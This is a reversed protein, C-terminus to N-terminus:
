NIIIWEDFEKIVEVGRTRAFLDFKTYSEDLVEEAIFNRFFMGILHNNNIADKVSEFDEVDVRASKLISKRNEIFSPIFDRINEINEHMYAIVTKDKLASFEKLLNELTAKQKIKEEEVKRLNEEIEKRMKEEEAKKMELVMKQNAYDVKLATRFYGGISPIKTGKEIEKLTYQLNKEIKEDDYKSFIEEIFNEDLGLETYLSNYLENDENKPVLDKEKTKNIKPANKNKSIHFTLKEIKRGVKHEEFTFKIDTKEELEKQAQIIVKRKFDNYRTYKIEEIKLIKRLEKITIKWWGGSLDKKQYQKLLEYIRISYSSKLRAVNELYYSTFNSTLELLYPRIDTNIKFSLYGIEDTEINTFIVSLSFGKKVPKEIVGFMRYAIEKLKTYGDRFFNIDEILEKTPLRYIDLDPRNRIETILKSFIKLEVPTKYLTIANLSNSKVVLKKNSEEM